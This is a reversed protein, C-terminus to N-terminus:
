WEIVVSVPKHDSPRSERRSQPNGVVGLQWADHEVQCSGSRVAYAGVGSWIGPSVVIHDILEEVIAGGELPDAFVTTAAQALVPPDMAHKFYTNPELFSGVLEDLINHVLFEREMLDQFPGDNFDGAVVVNGLEPGAAVISALVRRLRAVEASLKQRSSLADLVPAPNSARNDWQRRTKLTSFKSKTHVGVLVLAQGAALEGRLMLPHRDMNHTRRECGAVAGWPYYPIDRWLQAANTGPPLWVRFRGAISRRVLAYVAQNSRNSRHVVYAGDLFSDVFLQMQEALPPGEQVFLVDADVARIGEAIRRCLAHVDGIPALRIGGRASGGFRKPIKPTARWQADPLAGFLALMWEINYTAVKLQGM